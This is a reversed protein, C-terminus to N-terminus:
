RSVCSTNFVLDVYISELARVRREFSLENEVRQRAAVVRAARASGDDLVQLLAQALSSADGPAVIMGDIGPRCIEATGGADTAVIPTEMAMAELVANPTGEYDSSQVFLDLAHHFAVVDHVHGAFLCRDLVDLRAAHETLVSQLSGAGAIVLFLDPHRARAAAFADLLLDFRKQPELRGVAGVVTAAAPLGLGGRAKAAATPDRRFTHHDIGNLLVQVREPPAGRAVLENRIQSSVALVLPFRKLIWKDAPYYIIRERWTAGTWGHATSLIATRTRRALWWALVDTKYDHAHVVQIQHARILEDLQGPIRTDFSSREVVEVYDVGADAARRDIHFVGDRADRLYCVTIRVRRTDTAAAGFLITKEPGGGTGRVSRLELVRVPDM